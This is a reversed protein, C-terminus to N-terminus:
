ILQGGLNFLVVSTLVTVLTIYFHESFKRCFCGLMVLIWIKTAWMGFYSWNTIIFSMIPNIETGSQNLIIMTTLGDFINLIIFFILLHLKTKTM